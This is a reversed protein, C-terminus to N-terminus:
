LYKNPVSFYIMVKHFIDSKAIFGQSNRKLDSASEEKAYGIRCADINIGGTGNALVNEAITMGEQLPKRALVIPENAPKLQTNWGDWQKAEDTAPATINCEKEADTFQGFRTRDAKNEALSYGAMGLKSGIVEREVNAAKDIMKGIDQGKPFGVGHAFFCDNDGNKIIESFINRQEDTLSEIFEDRLNSDDFCFQLRDRIEFGALRMALVGVDYTRTGFFCLVHGGHKLVRYVEKWFVPQPVFADWKKGMFGGGGVEYYGHELWATILKIADPEKGLGYPADMAFADVSNDPMLKLKEINDGLFLEIRM